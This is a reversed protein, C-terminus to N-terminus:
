TSTRKGKELAAKYIRFWDKALMTVCWPRRNTRHAVIPLHGRGEDTADRVSQEIAKGINLHEQRKIEQHIFPLGLCDARESGRQFMEQGGRRAETFGAERCLAAWEREGDAGKRNEARGM